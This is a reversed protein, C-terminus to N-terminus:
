FPLGNRSSTVDHAGAAAPPTRPQARPGGPGLTVGLWLGLWYGGLQQHDGAVDTVPLRRLLTGAVFGGRWGFTPASRYEFGIDGVARASWTDHEGATRDVSPVRTLHATAAAARLAFRLDLRRSLAVSYGPALSLELWQVSPSGAVRPAEGFMWAMGLELSAHGPLRLEAALLPGALWLDGPGVLAAQAAAGLRTRPAELATATGPAATGSLARTREQERASKLREQRLRRALEAAVLAIRQARLYRSGAPTLTVARAGHFMGHEWLEVRLRNDVQGLVRVFLSRQGFGPETSPAPVDIERLELGILRRTLRADLLRESEPDIEVLM